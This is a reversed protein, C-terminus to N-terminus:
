NQLLTAGELMTLTFELQCWIFSTRFVYNPPRPVVSMFAGSRNWTYGNGYLIKVIKLLCAHM